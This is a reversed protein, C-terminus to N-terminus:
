LHSGYSRMKSGLVWSHTNGSCAGGPSHAVVGTDVGPTVPSVVFGGFVVTVVVLSSGVVVLVVSSGVVVLVVSSGVVVLVVSSGVVVLVVSSGVEEVVSSPPEVVSGIVAGPGSSQSSSPSM